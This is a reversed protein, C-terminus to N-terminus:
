LKMGTQSYLANRKFKTLQLIVEGFTIEPKSENETKKFLIIGALTSAIKCDISDFGCVQLKYFERSFEEPSAHELTIKTKKIEKCSVQATAITPFLAVFFLFSTIKLFLRNPTSAMSVYNEAFYTEM